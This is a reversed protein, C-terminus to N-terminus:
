SIRKVIGNPQFESIEGVCREIRDGIWIIGSNEPIALISSRLSVALSVARDKMLDQYHCLVSMGGLMNLGHHCASGRDNEEEATRIDKGLVIAGASGGYIMGGGQVYETLRGGMGSEQIFHLLHYTNGGGIYVADFKNLLIVQTNELVIEFNIEKGEAHKTVLASFWDICSERGISERRLAIPIYLLSAQRPLEFFFQADFDITSDADGGGGLFLKGNKM